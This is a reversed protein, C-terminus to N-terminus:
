VDTAASTQFKEQPKDGSHNDKAKYGFQKALEVDRVKVATQEDPYVGIYKDKGNARIRVRYRNFALKTIGKLKAARRELMKTDPFESDMTPAVDPLTPSLFRGNKGCVCQWAAFGYFIIGDKSILIQADMRVDFLHKRCKACSITRDAYIEDNLSKM